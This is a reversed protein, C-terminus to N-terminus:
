LSVRTGDVGVTSISISCFSAFGYGGYRNEPRDLDNELLPGSRQLYISQSGRSLSQDEPQCEQIRQLSDPPFIMM